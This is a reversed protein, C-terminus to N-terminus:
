IEKIKIGKELNFQWYYLPLKLTNRINEIYTKDNQTPSGIGVVILRTALSRDPFYSYELLQGVAYRICQKVNSSTKIEFFTRESGKDTAIDIRTQFGTENETCVTHGVKRLHKELSLSIENHLLTIEFDFSRSTGKTRSKLTKRASTENMKFAKDDAFANPLTRFDTFTYRYGPVSKDGRQVEIPEELLHANQPKFRINFISSDFSSTIKNGDLGAGDFDNSMIKIWKEAKYHEFTEIAQKETLVEVGKIEGIWLNNVFGEQKTFLSIDYKHGQHKNMNGHIGELFAYHYGDILKGFDFLWEEYGFGFKGEHTDPNTSKGVRGSPRTWGNENYVIRALKKEAVSNDNKFQVYQYVPLLYELEDVIMSIMNSQSLENQNAWKGFFIFDGVNIDNKNIKKVNGDDNCDRNGHTGRWTWMKEKLLYDPYKDLFSNFRKITEERSSLPDNVSQSTELSIALGFRFVDGKDMGMNFQFENSGGINFTYNNQEVFKENVNFFNYDGVKRRQNEARLKQFSSIQSSRISIEHNVQKVFEKFNEM